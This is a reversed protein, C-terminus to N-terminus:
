VSRMQKVLVKKIWIKRGKETDTEALMEEEREKQQQRDTKHKVVVTFTEMERKKTWSCCPNRKQFLTQTLSKYM